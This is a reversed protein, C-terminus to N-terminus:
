TQPIERNEEDRNTRAGPPPRPEGSAGDARGIANGGLNEESQAPPPDSDYLGPALFDVCLDQVSIGRVAKEKVIGGAAHSYPIWQLPEAAFRARRDASVSSGLGIM